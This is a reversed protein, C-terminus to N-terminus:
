SSDVDFILNICLHCMKCNINYNWGKEPRENRGSGWAQFAPCPEGTLVSRGTLYRRDSDNKTVLILGLDHCRICSLGGEAPERFEILSGVKIKQIDELEMGNGEDVSVM